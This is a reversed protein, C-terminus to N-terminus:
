HYLAPSLFYMRGADLKPLDIGLDIKMKPPETKAFWRLLNALNIPQDYRVLKAKPIGALKQAQKVATDFNGLEDVFGHKFADAGTLIRGDAYQEWDRVLSRGKNNNKQKAQQRGSSVVEKFRNYSTNILAQIMDREEQSIEDKSKDGSMMDKFRGSKYVEPRVGVKDMLGRYNYGHMIVGISGTITLENAVIWQCPASVYYGGSAALSGFSAIVPKRVDKQFEAIARSIEDSAMVEGGPSDVKLLVAKVDDDEAAMKLEEKVLTVMDHAGELVAGTIIGELPVVAIKFRSDSDEIVTERLFRGTDGSGTTSSTLSIAWFFVDKLILLGFLFMLIFSLVMWGRGQRKPAKYALPPMILPPPNQNNSSPPLSDDM